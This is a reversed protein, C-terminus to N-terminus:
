VITRLIRKSIIALSIGVIAGVLLDSPYHVGVFIRSLAFLFPWILVLWIWKTHKKLVLIVFVSVAFSVASHGSFFSFDITDQLVRVLGKLNPENSPRIRTVYNKVLSTIGLTVGMLTVTSITAILAKKRSLKKWFLLFFLIYLPIWNEIKTVFLWFQDWNGTSLGNLYLFLEKDWDLIHDM